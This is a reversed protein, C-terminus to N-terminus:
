RGKRFFKEIKQNHHIWYDLAVDTLKMDTHDYDKMTADPILNWIKFIADIESIKYFSCWNAFSRLGTHYEEGNHLFWAIATGLYEIPRLDSSSMYVGSADYSMGNDDKWVIHNRKGSWYLDGRNFANKLMFAFYYSYRECFCRVIQDSFQNDSDPFHILNSIFDLISFDLKENAPCNKYYNLWSEKMRNIEQQKGDCTDQMAYDQSLLESECEPHIDLLSNVVYIMKKELYDQYEKNSPDIEYHGCEICSTYGDTVWKGFKLGEYYRAPIWGFEFKGTCAEYAYAKEIDTCTIGTLVQAARIDLWLHEQYLIEDTEDDYDELRHSNFCDGRVIRKEIALARMYLIKLDEEDRVMVVNVAYSDGDYELEWEGDYLEAPESCCLENGKSFLVAETWPEEDRAGCIKIDMEMDNGFSVTHSITDDEGMMETSQLAGMIYKTESPAVVMTKRYKM